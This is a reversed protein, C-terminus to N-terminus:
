AGKLQIAKGGRIVIV